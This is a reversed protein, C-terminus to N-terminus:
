TQQSLPRTRPNHLPQAQLVSSPCGFSLYVPAITASSNRSFPDTSFQRACSEGCWFTIAIKVNVRLPDNVTVDLWAVKQQVRDEV